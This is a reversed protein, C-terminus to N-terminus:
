NLLLCVLVMDVWRRGEKDKLLTVPTPPLTLPCTVLALVYCLCDNVSVNLSALQAGITLQRGFFFLRQVTPPLWFLVWSFM